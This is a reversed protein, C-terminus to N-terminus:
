PSRTLRADLSVLRDGPLTFLYDASGYGAKSFRVTFTGPQLDYIQYAGDTGTQATRGVNAGAVFAVSVGALKTETEADVVWGSLARYYRRLGGAQVQMILFTSEGQYSARIAVQGDQLVTVFGVSNVTAINTDSTSWTAFGTVDRSVGNSDARLSCQYGDVDQGCGISLLSLTTPTTPGSSQSPGDSCALNTILIAVTVAALLSRMSELLPL